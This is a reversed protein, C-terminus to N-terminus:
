LGGRRKRFRKVRAHGFDEFFKVIDRPYYEYQAIRFKVRKVEAMWADREADAGLHEISQALALLKKTTSPKM